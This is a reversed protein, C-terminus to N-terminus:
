LLNMKNLDVGTHSVGSTTMDLKGSRPTNTM